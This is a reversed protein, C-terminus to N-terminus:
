KKKSKNYGPKRAPKQTKAAPPSNNTELGSISTREDRPPNCQDHVPINEQTREAWVTYIYTAMLFPALILFIVLFAFHEETLSFPLM